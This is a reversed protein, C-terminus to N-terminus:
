PLLLGQVDFFSRVWPKSKKMAAPLASLADSAQRKSEFVGYIVTYAVRGNLDRKFYAADSVVNGHRIVDVISQESSATVLQVTYREPSQAKIWEERHIGNDAIAGAYTTAVRKDAPVPPSPKPIGSGSKAVVEDPATRTRAALGALRLQAKELGQDAALQYWRMAENVNQTTGVGNEFLRGVQYQALALRQEAAKRLWHYARTYDTPMGRGGAYMVGLQYQAMAHDQDAALRYWKAAKQEDKDVGLGRAYLKGLGYQSEALGAEAAMHWWKAAEKYDKPVGIGEFCKAGLNHQVTPIGQLAAKKYWEMAIANDETVGQGYDYMIGVTLQAQADGQEAFPLLINMARAYDKVLYAAKGEELTAAKIGSVTLLGLLVVGLQLARIAPHFNRRPAARNPNSRYEHAAGAPVHHRTVISLGLAILEGLEAGRRGGRDM